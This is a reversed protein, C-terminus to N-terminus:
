KCSAVCQKLEPGPQDFTAICTQQCQAIEDSVLAFREQKVTCTNDATLYVRYVGKHTTIQTKYDTLGNVTRGEEVANYGRWYSQAYKINIKLEVALVEVAYLGIDRNCNAALLNGSFLFTMLLVFKSM